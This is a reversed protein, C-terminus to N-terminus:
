TLQLFPMLISIAQLYGARILPTRKLAERELPRATEM